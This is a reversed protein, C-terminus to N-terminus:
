GKVGAPQLERAETISKELADPKETAIAQVAGQSTKALLVGGLILAFTSLNVLSLSEAFVFYAFVATLASEMLLVVNVFTSSLYRLVYVVLGHGLAECVIALCGVALWGSFSLPLIPGQEILVIPLMVLLGIFCRWFLINHASLRTRLKEIILCSAAYFVASLLAAADGIAAAAEGVGHGSALTSLDDLGLTIAGALAIAMGAIFRRDFRQGFMLWGGLFTFIPPMNAMLTAKVASTQTLSWTWFFRGTVHIIAVLVLLLIVKVSLNNEVLSTAESTEEPKPNRLESFGNWAGFIITAIWLRNFLTANASIDALSVKVFIATLSLSVLAIFLLCFALAPTEKTEPQASSLSSGVM